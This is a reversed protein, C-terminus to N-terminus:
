KSKYPIHRYGHAGIEVLGSSKLFKIDELNLYDKKGVLEPCIFVTIPIEYESHYSFM